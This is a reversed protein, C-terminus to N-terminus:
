YIDFTKTIDFYLDSLEGSERDKVSMLDYKRDNENILAQGMIEFGKLRLFTRLESVSLTMYATETSKGDGSRSISDVLGQLVYRHYKGKEVNGLEFSCAMSHLHGTLSTYNTDLIKKSIVLCNDFKSDAFSKYLNKLQDIDENSHLAYGDTNSFAIRFKLFDADTSIKLM